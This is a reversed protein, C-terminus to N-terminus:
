VLNDKVSRWRRQMVTGKYILDNIDNLAGAEIELPNYSRGPMGCMRESSFFLPARQHNTTPFLM